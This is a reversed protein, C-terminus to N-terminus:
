GTPTAPQRDARDRELVAKRTEYEQVDIEGSAM